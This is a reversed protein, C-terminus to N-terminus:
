AIVKVHMQVGSNPSVHASLFSRQQIRKLSLPCCRRDNALFVMMGVKM